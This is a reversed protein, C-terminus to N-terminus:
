LVFSLVNEENALLWGDDTDIFYGAYVCSIMYVSYFSTCMPRQLAPILPCYFPKERLRSVCQKTKKNTKTEHKSVVSFLVCVVGICGLLLSQRLLEEWGIASVNASTNGESQFILSGLM